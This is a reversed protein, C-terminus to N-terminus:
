NPVKQAAGYVRDRASVKAMGFNKLQRGKYFIAVHV